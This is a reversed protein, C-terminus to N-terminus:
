GNPKDGQIDIEAGLGSIKVSGVNPSVFAAIMATLALITLILAWGLYHIIEAAVAGPWHLFALLGAFLLAMLCLGASVGVLTREALPTPRLVSPTPDPM